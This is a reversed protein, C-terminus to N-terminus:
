RSKAPFHQMTTDLWRDFNELFARPFLEPLLRSIARNLADASEPLVALTQRRGVDTAADAVTVEPADFRPLQALKFELVAQDLPAFYSDVFTVARPRRTDALGLAALLARKRNRPRVHPAEPPRVGHDRSTTTTRGGTAESLLAGFICAH